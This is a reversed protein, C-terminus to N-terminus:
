NRVILEAGVSELPYTPTAGVSELFVGVSELNPETQDTSLYPSNECFPNTHALSCSRTPNFKSDIPAAYSEGAEVPIWPRM